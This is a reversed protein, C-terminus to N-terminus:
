SILRNLIFGVSVASAFSILSGVLIYETKKQTTDEKDTFRLISKATMLFGLATYQNVLVFSLILIRECRGIWVGAKDLGDSDMKAEIRWKETLKGIIIGMPWIIVYYGIAIIWNKPSDLIKLLIDNLFVSREYLIVWVVLIILIHLGQDILLNVLNNKVRCKCFDIILHTFGIILPIYWEAGDWLFIFNLLTITGIHYLLYVSLGKKDEKERVWHNPQFVFDGLLHAMLLRLFVLVGLNVM